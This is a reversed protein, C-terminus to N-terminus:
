EASRPLLWRRWLMYEATAAAVVCVVGIGILMVSSSSVESARLYFLFFGSHVLFLLVLWMSRSLSLLQTRFLVVLGAVSVFYGSLVMFLLSAGFARLAEHASFASASGATADGTLTASLVIGFALAITLLVVEFVYFGIALALSLM